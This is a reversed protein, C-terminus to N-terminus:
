AATLHRDSRRDRCGHGDAHGLRLDRGKAPFCAGRPRVAPDQRGCRDPYAQGEVRPDPRTVGDADPKRHPAPLAGDPPQPTLCVKRLDGDQKWSTPVANRFTMSDGAKAAVVPKGAADIMAFNSDLATIYEDGRYPGFSKQMTTTDWIGVAMGIRDDQCILHDNQVPRPSLFGARDLALHEMRLANPVIYLPRPAKTM